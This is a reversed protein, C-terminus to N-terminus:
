LGGDEDCILGSVSFQCGSPYCPNGADNVPTFHFNANELQKLDDFFRYGEGNCKASALGLVKLKTLNKLPELYEDTIAARQKFNLGFSEFEQEMWGAAVTLRARGKSFQDLTAIAKAALRWGNIGLSQEQKM